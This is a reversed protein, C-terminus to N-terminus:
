RGPWRRLKQRRVRFHLGDVIRSQGRVRLVCEGPSLHAAKAPHQRELQTRELGRPPQEVGDPQQASASLRPPTSVSM